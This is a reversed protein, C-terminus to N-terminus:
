NGALWVGGRREYEIMEAVRQAGTEGTLRTLLHLALDIGATVGGCTVVPGADVVRAGEIVRAATQRLDAMAGHHTMAPLGDLVGAAALIMGGTCVGAVLGGREWVRRIIRLADPNGAQARAGRVAGSNWGGGPVLLLDLREADLCGHPHLRAGHALEVEEGPCVTELRLPIGGARLVEYPGFVDLEEAGPFVMMAADMAINEIGSPRGVVEM